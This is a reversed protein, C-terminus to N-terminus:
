SRLPDPDPAHAQGSRLGSACWDRAVSGRIPQGGKPGHLLASPRTPHLVVIFNEAIFGSDEDVSASVTLDSGDHVRTVKRSQEAVVGCPVGFPFLLRLAEVDSVGLADVKCSEDKVRLGTKENVMDVMVGEIIASRIEASNMRSDVGQITSCMGTDSGTSVLVGTFSSPSRLNM